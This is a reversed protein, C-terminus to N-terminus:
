VPLFLAQPTKIKFGKRSKRFKRLYFSITYSGKMQMGAQKESEHMCSHFANPSCEPLWASTKSKTKIIFSHSSHHSGSNPPEEIQHVSYKLPFFLQESGFWFLLTPSPLLHEMFHTLCFFGFRSSWPSFTSFKKKKKFTDFSIEEAVFYRMLPAIWLQM